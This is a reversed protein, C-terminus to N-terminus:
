SKPKVRLVFRLPSGSLFSGRYRVSALVVVSDTPQTLSLPRLRVAVSASGDSATTDVTTRNNNGNVLRALVTDTPYTMTYSVIYAQVPDYGLTASSRHGVIVSLPGSLAPTTDTLSYVLSDPSSAVFFTDPVPVVFLNVPSTQLGKADVIIRSPTSRISDAVAVGTISDVTIGPDLARFRLTFGPIPDGNDDYATGRLPRAVGLTDRLTDGVVISPSALSDLSVAAAKGAGVSIDHCALASVVCAAGVIARRAIRVFAGSV